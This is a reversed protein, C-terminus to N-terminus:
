DFTGALKNNVIELLEIVTSPRVVVLQEAQRLCAAPDLHDPLLDIFAGGVGGFPTRNPTIKALVLCFADKPPHQQNM